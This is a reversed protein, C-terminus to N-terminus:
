VSSMGLVISAAQTAELEMNSANIVRQMFHKALEEKVYQEMRQICMELVEVSEAGFRSAQLKYKLLRERMVMAYEFLKRLIAPPAAYCATLPRLATV